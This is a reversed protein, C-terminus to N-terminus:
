PDSLPVTLDPAQPPLRLGDGATAEAAVRCHPSPSAPGAGSAWVDQRTQGRGVEWGPRRAAQGRGTWRSEPCLAGGDALTPEESGLCPRGSSCPGTRAEPGDQIEM